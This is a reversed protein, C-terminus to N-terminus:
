GAAATPLAKLQGSGAGTVVEPSMVESQLWNFFVQRIRMPLSAIQTATPKGSCLASYASTMKAMLRTVIEPDLDDMAQLLAAPDDGPVDPLGGGEEQAEKIVTKVTALFDAIQRDSPEKITGSANVYPRFDYDLAEVVGEAKFGAM